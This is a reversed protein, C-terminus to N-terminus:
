LAADRRAADRSGANIRTVCEIGKSFLLCTIKQNWQIRLLLLCGPVMVSRGNYQCNCTGSFGRHHAAANGVQDGSMLYLWGAYAVQGKGPCCGPIHTGSEVLQKAVQWAALLHPKGGDM